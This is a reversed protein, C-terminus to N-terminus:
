NTLNGLCTKLFDVEFDIAAKRTSFGGFILLSGERAYDPLALHDVESAPRIGLRKECYPPKLSYENYTRVKRLEDLFVYVFWTNDSHGEPSTPEVASARRTVAQSGPFRFVDNHIHELTGDERMVIQLKM